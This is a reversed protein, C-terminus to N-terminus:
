YGRQSTLFAIPDSMLTTTCDNVCDSIVCSTGTLVSGTQNSFKHTSYLRCTHFDFQMSIYEFIWIFNRLLEIGKLYEQKTFILQSSISKEEWIWDSNTSKPDWVPGQDIISFFTHICFTPGIKKNGNRIKKGYFPIFEIRLIIYGSM